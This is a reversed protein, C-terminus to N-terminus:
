GKRVAAGVSGGDLDAALASVVVPRRRRRDHREPSSDPESHPSPNGEPIVPPLLSSRLLVQQPVPKARKKPSVM